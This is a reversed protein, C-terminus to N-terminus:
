PLSQFTQVSAIQRIHGNWKLKETEKISIWNSCRSKLTRYIFPLYRGMMRMRLATIYFWVFSFNSRSEFSYYYYYYYFFILLLLNETGFYLIECQSTLSSIFIVHFKKECCTHAIEIHWVTFLLELHKCLRLFRSSTFFFAVVIITHSSLTPLHKALFIWCYDGSIARVCVRVYM